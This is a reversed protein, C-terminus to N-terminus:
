RRRRLRVPRQRRRGGGVLLFYVRTNLRHLAWQQKVRRPPPPPKGGYPLLFRWPAEGPLLGPLFVIEEPSVDGEFARFSM